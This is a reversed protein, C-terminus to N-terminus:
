FPLLEFFNRKNSFIRKKQVLFWERAAWAKKIWGDSVRYERPGERYRGQEGMERKRTWWENMWENVRYVKIDMYTNKNPDKNWM